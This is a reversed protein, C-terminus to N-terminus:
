EVLKGIETTDRVVVLENSPFVAVLPHSKQTSMEEIVSWSMSSMMVITPIIISKAIAIISERRILLNINLSVESSPVM